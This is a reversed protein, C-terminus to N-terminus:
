VKKPKFKLYIVILVLWLVLSALSAIMIPWINMIFSYTFWSFSSALSVLIPGPHVAGSTGNKRIEIIQVIVVISIILGLIFITLDKDPMVIIIPIALSSSLGIIKERLSIKKVKLLNIIILIAVLGALGSIIIALSDKYIGYHILALDFFGYSSFYIFSVSEGSTKVIRQNQRALAGAKLISFLITVLFILTLLNLGLGNIENFNVM